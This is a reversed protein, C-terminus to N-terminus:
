DTVDQVKKIELVENKKNAEENIVTINCERHTRKYLVSEANVNDFGDSIPLREHQREYAEKAIKKLSSAMMKGTEEVM